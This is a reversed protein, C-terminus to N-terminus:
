RRRRSFAKGRRGVTFAAKQRGGARLGRGRRGFRARVARGRRVSTQREAQAPTAAEPNEGLGVQPARMSARPGFQALCQNYALDSKIKECEAISRPAGQANAAAPLAALFLLFPILHKM